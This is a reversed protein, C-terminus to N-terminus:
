LSFVHIYMKYDKEAGFDKSRREKRLSVSWTECGYLVVPLIVNRYVNIKINKYLLVPPCFIRRRCLARLKTTFPIKIQKTQQWIDLNKWGTLPITVKRQTTVEDQISTELCSCV